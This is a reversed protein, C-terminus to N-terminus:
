LQKLKGFRQRAIYVGSLIIFTTLFLTLAYIHAQEYNMMEVQDYIAVSAVKTEGPISGGIMLVVGFEGITHAFTLVMGTILSSKINPLLIGFLTKLRSKGLTYSAEKLQRPISAFGSQIPHVMFPLSYIVSAVVIGEFSFVLQLDLYKSLMTGLWGSPNFAMLFYFGLVTPPLVLPMTVLVEVITKGPFRSYNLWYALPIAIIFLLVTVIGALKLTLIFPEMDIMM